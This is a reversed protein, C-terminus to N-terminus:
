EGGLTPGGGGNNGTPGPPAGALLEDIAVATLGGAILGGMVAHSIPDALAAAM